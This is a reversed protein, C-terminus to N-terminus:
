YIVLKQHVNLAPISLIFVGSQNWAISENKKIELVANLQGNIEYIYLPFATVDKSQTSLTLFGNQYTVTSLPWLQIATTGSLTAKGDQDIQRLRYYVMGKREVERDIISYHLTAESNGAADIQSITEYNLGDYSREIQFFDMSSESLTSWSVLVDHDNEVAEFNGIEVPLVCDYCSVTVNDFRWIEAAAWCMCSIRIALTTGFDICPSSYTIPGGGVIDGIQIMEGPSLTLPCTLGAVETWGSGDLNYELKVWDICDAGTLGVCSACEEMNSLEEIDFSILIGTCSTIDIDGTEWAAAPGNTDKAELKGSLVKFYDDVALSGPCTATWSVIGATNDVGVVAGDAEDFTELFVVQSFGLNMVALFFSLCISKM